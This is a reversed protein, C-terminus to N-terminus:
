INLLSTEMPGKGLTVVFLIAPKVIEAMTPLPYPAVSSPDNILLFFFGTAELLLNM